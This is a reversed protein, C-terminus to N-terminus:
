VMMMMTKVIIVTTQETVMNDDMFLTWKIIHLSITLIHIHYVYEFNYGKINMSKGCRTVPFWFFM